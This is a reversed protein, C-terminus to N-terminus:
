FSRLNQEIRELAFKCNDKTMPDNANKQIEEILGRFHSWPKGPGMVEKVNRGAAIVLDCIAGVIARSLSEPRDLVSSAVNICQTIGGSYQLILRNQNITTLGSNIGAICGFCEEQLSFLFDKDDEDDMNVKCAMAQQVIGIVQPIFQLMDNTAAQFIDGLTLMVPSFISRDIDPTTFLGFLIPVFVSVYKSFKAELGNAVDGLAGIAAKCVDVESPKSICGQLVQCIQPAYREVDGEMSSAFTGLGLVAEEQASAGAAKTYLTLYDTCVRDAVEKVATGLKSV